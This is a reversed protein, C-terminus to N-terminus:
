EDLRWRGYLPIVGEGAVIPSHVLSGCDVTRVSPFATVAADVGPVEDTVKVGLSGLFALPEEKLIPEFCGRISLPRPGFPPSASQHPDDRYNPDGPTSDYSEGDRSAFILHLVEFVQKLSV